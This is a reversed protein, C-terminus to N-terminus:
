VKVFTDNGVMLFPNFTSENLRFLQYVYVFLDWVLSSPVFQYHIVPEENLSLDDDNGGCHLFKKSPKALGITREVMLEQLTGDDVIYVEDKYQGQSRPAAQYNIGWNQLGTYDDSCSSLHFGQKNMSVQNM